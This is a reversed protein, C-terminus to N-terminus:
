FKFPISETSVSHDGFRGFKITCDDGWKRNIMSDKLAQASDVPKGGLEEIVDGTQIGIQEAATGPAVAMVVVGQVDSPVHFQKRLDATLDAVTVGLKASGTRDKSSGSGGGPQSPDGSGPVQVDPPFPSNGSGDPTVPAGATKPLKDPSTLDVNFTQHKGDRIVEVEIKEGPSYNLMADRVDSETKVSINGVRVIVDDKKIGAMAAPTGNAVEEVAAGGDINMQKAKYQELTKPVLGLAGREIKGDAILKDAILRATNSPIAFGIGNNMGTQSYIATNIGV